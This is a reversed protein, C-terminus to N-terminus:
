VLMDSHPHIFATSILNEVIVIEILTYLIKPHVFDNKNSMSVAIFFALWMLINAQTYFLELIVTPQQCKHRTLIVLVECRKNRKVLDICSKYYQTSQSM